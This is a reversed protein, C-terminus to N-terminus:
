YKTLTTQMNRKTHKEKHLQNIQTAATCEPIALAEWHEGCCLMELKPASLLASSVERRLISVFCFLVLSLVTSNTKNYIQM